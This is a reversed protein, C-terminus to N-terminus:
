LGADRREARVWGRPSPCRGFHHSPHHDHTQAEGPQSHGVRGTHGVAVWGRRAEIPDGPAWMGVRKVHEEFANGAKSTAVDDRKTVIGLGHCRILTILQHHHRRRRHHDHDNMATATADPRRPPTQTHTSIDARPLCRRPERRRLTSINGVSQDATNSSSLPATRRGGALVLVAVIGLPTTAPIIAAIVAISMESKTSAASRGLRYLAGSLHHGALRKSTRTLFSDCHICDFEEGFRNMYDRIGFVELDHFAYSQGCELIITFLKDPTVGSKLRWALDRPVGGFSDVIKGHM